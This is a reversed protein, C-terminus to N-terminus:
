ELPPASPYLLEIVGGCWEKPNDYYRQTATTAWLVSATFMASVTVLAFLWKLSYQNKM